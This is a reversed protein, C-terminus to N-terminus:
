KRMRSNAFCRIFVSVRDVGNFHYWHWKMNSHREGREPFTFGVWGGIKRPTSIVKNRDLKTNFLSSTGQPDCEVALCEEM